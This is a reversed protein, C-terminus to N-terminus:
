KTILGRGVIYGLISITLIPLIFVLHANGWTISHEPIFYMQKDIVFQVLFIWFVLVANGLLYRLLNKM